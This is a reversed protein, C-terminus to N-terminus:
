RLLRFPATLYVLRPKVLQLNLSHIKKCKCRTKVVVTCVKSNTNGERTYVHLFFIAETGFYESIDTIADSFLNREQVNKVAKAHKM